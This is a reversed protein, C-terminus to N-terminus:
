ECDPLHNRMMALREAKKKAESLSFLVGYVYQRIPRYLQVASPLDKNAEDEITVSLKLEGQLFYGDFVMLWLPKVLLPKLTVASNSTVLLQGQYPCPLYIPVHPGKQTQAWRSTAGRTGGSTFPSHYYGHSKKNAYFPPISDPYQGRRSREGRPRPNCTLDCFCWVSLSIFSNM